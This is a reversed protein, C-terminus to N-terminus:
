RVGLVLSVKEKKGDATTFNGEVVYTGVSVTRGRFDKLNWSGVARRADNGIIAKDKDTIRINNILKGSADFIKLKSGSRIQNGQHFFIVEGATRSVPNPGATFKGPLLNVPATTNESPDQDAASIISNDVSGCIAGSENNFEAGDYVFVGDGDSARNGCIAGATM